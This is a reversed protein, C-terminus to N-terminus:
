TSGCKRAVILRGPREIANMYNFAKIEIVTWVGSQALRDIHAQYGDEVFYAGNMFIVIPSGPQVMRIIESYCEPGLHGPAFSGACVAAQYAGAEIVTTQMLDGSVLKGYIAKPRAVNLMEESIDIGDIHTYGLAKLEQGVLGTGCGIDIISAGKNPAVGALAKAAILHGTYGLNGILDQEYTQSWEDYLPQTSRKAAEYEALKDLVAIQKKNM